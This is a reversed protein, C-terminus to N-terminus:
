NDKLWLYVSRKEQAMELKGERALWGVDMPVLEAPAKVGKEVATMTSKGHDELFKWVDGATEGISQTDVMEGEEGGPV